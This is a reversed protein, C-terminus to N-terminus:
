HEINRRRQAEILEILREYGEAISVCSNRQDGAPHSAAKDRWEKARERYRELTIEWTEPL